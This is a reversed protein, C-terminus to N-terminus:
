ASPWTDTRPLLEEGRAHLFAAFNVIGLLSGRAVADHLLNSLLQQPCIHPNHWGFEGDERKDALRRKCQFMLADIAANDMEEEFARWETSYKKHPNAM